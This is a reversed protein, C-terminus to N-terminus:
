GQFMSRVFGRDVWMYVGKEGVVKEMHLGQLRLERFMECWLSAHKLSLRICAEFVGETWGCRGEKEGM